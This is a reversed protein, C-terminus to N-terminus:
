TKCKHSEIMVDFDYTWWDDLDGGQKRKIKEGCRKCEGQRWQGVHGISETIIFKDYDPKPIRVDMYVELYSMTNAKNRGYGKVYGLSYSVKHNMDLLFFACSYM